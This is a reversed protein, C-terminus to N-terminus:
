DKENEKRGAELYARAIGWASAQGAFFRAYDDHRLELADASGKAKGEELMVFQVALQYVNRRTAQMIQWRDAAETVPRPLAESVAEQWEDMVLLRAQGLGELLAEYYVAATGLKKVEWLPRLETLLRALDNRPDYPEKSGGNNM